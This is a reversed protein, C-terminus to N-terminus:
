NVIVDILWVIVVRCLADILLRGVLWGVMWGFLWVVCCDFLWAVM